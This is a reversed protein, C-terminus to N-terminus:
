LKTCTQQRSTTLVQEPIPPFPFTGATEISNLTSLTDRVGSYVFISSSDINQFDPFLRIILRPDTNAKELYTFAEEFRTERLMVFGAKQNIYAIEHFQLSCRWLLVVLREADFHVDDMVQAAMEAM